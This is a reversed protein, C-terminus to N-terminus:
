AEDKQRQLVKVVELAYKELANTPNNKTINCPNATGEILEIHGTKDSLLNKLIGIVAKEPSIAQIAVDPTDITMKDVLGSIASTLVNKSTPLVGFLNALRIVIQSITNSVLESATLNSITAIRCKHQSAYSLLQATHKRDIDIIYDLEKDVSSLKEINKICECRFYEDTGPWLFIQLNLDYYKKLAVLNSLLYSCLLEKADGTVLITANNLLCIPVKADTIQAVDEQYLYSYTVNM